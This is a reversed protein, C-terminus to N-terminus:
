WIKNKFTRIVFIMQPRQKKIEAKFEKLIKSLPKCKKKRIISHSYNISLICKIM